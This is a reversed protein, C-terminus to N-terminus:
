EERPWQTERFLGPQQPAPAPTYAYIIAVVKNRRADRSSTRPAVEYLEVLEYM